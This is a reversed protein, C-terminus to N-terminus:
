RRDRSVAFGTNINRYIILEMMRICDKEAEKEETEDVPLNYGKEWQEQMAVEAYGSNNGQYLEEKSGCGVLMLLLLM